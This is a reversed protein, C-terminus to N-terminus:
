HDETYGGYTVEVSPHKSSDFFEYPCTVGFSYPIGIRGQRDPLPQFRGTTCRGVPISTATETPIRGAGGVPAPCPGTPSPRIAGCMMAAATTQDTDYLKM